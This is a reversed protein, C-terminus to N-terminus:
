FATYALTSKEFPKTLKLSYTYKRLFFLQKKNQYDYQSEIRSYMYVYFVDKM